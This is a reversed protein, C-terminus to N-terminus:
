VFYVKILSSWVKSIAFTVEFNWHQKMEDLFAKMLIDEYVSCAYVLHVFTNEEENMIVERIVQVMPAIGTGAALM